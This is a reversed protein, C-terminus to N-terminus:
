KKLLRQQAELPFFCNSIGIGYYSKVLNDAGNQYNMRQRNIGLLSSLEEDTYSDYCVSVLNDLLSVDGISLVERLKGM